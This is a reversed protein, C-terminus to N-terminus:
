VHRLHEGRKHVGDGEDGPKIELQADHLRHRSVDSGADHEDAQRARRHNEDGDDDHFEERPHFPEDKQELAVRCDVHQFRVLNARVLATRLSPRTVDPGRM